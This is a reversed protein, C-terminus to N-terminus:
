YALYSLSIVYRYHYQRHRTECIIDHHITRIKPRINKIQSSLNSRTWNPDNMATVLDNAKHPLGDALLFLIKREMANFHIGLLSASLEERIKREIETM